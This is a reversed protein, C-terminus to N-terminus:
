RPRSTSRLLTSSGVEENRVFSDGTEVGVFCPSPAVRRSLTWSQAGDLGCEGERRARRSASSAASGGSCRAARAASIAGVVVGGAGADAPASSRSGQSRPALSPSDVVQVTSKTRGSRTRVGGIGEGRWSLVICHRGDLFPPDRGHVKHVASCLSCDGLSLSNTETTRISIGSSCAIFLADSARGESGRVPWSRSALPPSFSPPLPTTMPLLTIVCGTTSLPTLFARSNPMNQQAYQRQSPQDSNSFNDLTAAIDARPWRYPDPRLPDSHTLEDAPM